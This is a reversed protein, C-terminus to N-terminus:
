ASTNNWGTMTHSEEVIDVIVIILDSLFIVSYRVIM